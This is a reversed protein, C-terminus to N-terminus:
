ALRSNIGYIKKPKKIPLSHTEKPKIVIIEKKKDISKEQKVIVEIPKIEKTKEEITEKSIIEKVVIVNLSKEDSSKFRLSDEVKVYQEIMDTVSIVKVKTKKPVPLTKSIILKQTDLDYAIEKARILKTGYQNCETTGGVVVRCDVINDSFSFEVVCLPVILFAFYNRSM